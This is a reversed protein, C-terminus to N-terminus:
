AQTLATNCFAQLNTKMCICGLGEVPSWNSIEASIHVNEYIRTLPTLLSGSINNYMQVELAGKDRVSKKLVSM